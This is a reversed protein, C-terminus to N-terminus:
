GAIAAVVPRGLKEIRRLQAKIQEAMAFVAAADNPGFTVLWRLDGGAFFTPKASALIVGRLQEREAELTDLVEALAPAFARDLTNVPQGPWDMTLTVIGDSDKQYQFYSQQTAVFM